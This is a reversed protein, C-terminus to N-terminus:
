NFGYISQPVNMLALVKQQLANLPTIQTSGDPLRYWTIDHFVKLLAETTPHNTTRKPNGHYLGALKANTAKLARRVVYELLCFLRLAISLVFMLGAIRTENRFYVPLAPLHGRKFRHFGREISWQGRYYDLAQNLSLQEVPTNTLYIRWGMLLQTQAIAEPLQQYHLLFWPTPSESTVCPIDAVNAKGLSLSSSQVKLEFCDSLRYRKVIANAKRELECAKQVPKAALKALADDAKQLRDNFRDLEKQAVAYSHVVLHREEWNLWNEDDDQWRKGMVMEFGVGLPLEDENQSPLRIWQKATPPELVWQKLMTPTLGTEALPFCYLGGQQQIQARTALASAKCDGVMLFDSHGIVQRLRQWSRVYLPDDAGNGPLVQAAMPMGMPDLTSLEYRYQRLDPRHDKSHGYQLLSSADAEQTAPQHYVSFSTTDSRAVKTPLAYAEILHEALDVEIGEQAESYEALRELVLALRDDSADHHTITWGSCSELTQHHAKVWAAVVCIRHDSQSMMYVLLLVTLQGYSLGQWNGHVPPCHADVISQIKMQKLWYLIVPIDDSRESQITAGM